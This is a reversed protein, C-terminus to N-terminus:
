LYNKIWKTTNKVSVIFQEVDKQQKGLNYRADEKWHDLRSWDKKFNNDSLMKEHEASLGSLILLQVFNHVKYPKTISDENILKERNGFDFFNPMNLVLCIRAKLYLEVAYGAVYFALDYHGNAYLCEAEAIRTDALHQISIPTKM